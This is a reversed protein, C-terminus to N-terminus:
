PGCVVRGPFEWSHPSINLCAGCCSSIRWSRQPWVTSWAPRHFVSTRNHPVVLTRLGWVLVEDVLLVKSFFHEESIKRNVHYSLRIEGHERCAQCNCIRYVNVFVSKGSTGPLFFFLLRHAPSTLYILQQNNKVQIMSSMVSIFGFRRILFMDTTTELVYCRFCSIEHDTPRTSIPISKSFRRVM